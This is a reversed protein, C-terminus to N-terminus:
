EIIRAAQRLVAAPITIKMMDAVRRNIALLVKRPPVPEISGPAAGGLVRAAIDGCQRGIDEYDRDLAYLAGAKVWPESLGVFPIRNRVSFLLIPRVTEPTLVITDALGWLVEIDNELSKLSVPLESPTRVRRERLRLGLESAATAAEKVHAENEAPNFLVGVRTLDPLIRQLWQFEVAPPFELYVGTVNPAGALGDRKLVLSSVVPQGPLNRRAFETASPGIALVLDPKSTSVDRLAQEVERPGELRHVSLEPAFERERLQARFGALTQEHPPADRGLLVAIRAARYPPPPHGAPVFGTSALLAAVALWRAFSM